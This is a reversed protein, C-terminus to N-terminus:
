CDVTGRATQSAHLVRGAVVEDGTLRYCVIHQWSSAGADPSCTMARGVVNRSM